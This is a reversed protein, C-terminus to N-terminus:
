PSCGPATTNMQEKSVDAKSGVVSCLRPKTETGQPEEEHGASERSSRPAGVNVSIGEKASSVWCPLRRQPM